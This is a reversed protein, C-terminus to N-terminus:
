FVVTKIGSIIFGTSRGHSYFWNENIGQSNIFGTKDEM